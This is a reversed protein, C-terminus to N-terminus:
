QAGAINGQEDRLITIPQSVSQNLQATQAATEMTANTLGALQQQIGGLADIVAQTAAMKAQMEAAENEAKDQDMQQQEPTKMMQFGTTDLKIAAPQSPQAAPAEKQAVYADLQLKKADLALKAQDLQAKTADSQAKIQQDGQKIELEKGKLQLDGAKLQMDGQKDALQQQLEQIQQQAAQMVEQLQGQLAQVQPDPQGQELDSKDLYKPDVAKKLRASIAQSGPTDQYKFVLDGIIPMLEPMATILQQYQAAAEQRVTTASPGTIVRVNFKGKKLDFTREQDATSAAGNIAINKIEDEQGVIKIIRPADYIEPIAFVLIQGVHAISRTLNDGFHFTAVDGEKKQSNYAIGSIVNSKEGLGANYIGMTAKIDDVTERAANVIGTPITPPQLRQPPPAPNGEVDKQHYYLVMAKDPTKWDEEFGEMQGVAAQVPAQQQKLLLETELSKWLNYMYQAEKSKRILSNIQRKGEIWAEEGYVPVLPVYIGPFTTEDLVDEGSLKTRKVTCKSVKRTTKYKKDPADEGVEEDGGDDKLGITKSTEVIEFYEAITIKKDSQLTKNPNEDGFSVPAAKPYLKKFEEKDIEELVFAYKADSGDAEISDPDLLISQPNIIRKILLEQEFGTSAIYDHDVRIFGISSKVSFDVATDYASDAKSNYEIAKILGEFIEATEIDAGDGDPLVKITPTNMRVDNVVQHIFQGLQDITLVPRKVRTRNTAEEKDWQAFPEDSLFNQDDIAKSYVDSWGDKATKYRDKARKLTEDNKSM